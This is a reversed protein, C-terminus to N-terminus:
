KKVFSDRHDASPYYFHSMADIERLLGAPTHGTFYKCEKIFHCQDFYENDLALSLYNRNRTLLFPKITAHFRALRQFHKPSFGTERIFRRRLHRPSIGLQGTLSDISGSGHERYLQDIAKNWGPTDKKNRALQEELFLELQRITEDTDGLNRIRQLLDKGPRGWIDEASAQRDALESYPIDTFNKLSGAKFRIAIFHINDTAFLRTAQGGSFLLHTGALYKGESTLFPTAFHIFMDAGVGPTALPTCPSTSGANNFLWYRDIYPALLFNPWQFIVAM